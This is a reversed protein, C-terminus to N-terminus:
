GVEEIRIADIAQRLSRNLAGPRLGLGPMGYCNAAGDHLVLSGEENVIEELRDLRSTDKQAEALAFLITSLAVGILDGAHLRRLKELRERCDAIEEPTPM